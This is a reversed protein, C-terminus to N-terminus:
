SEGAQELTWAAEGGPEAGEKGNATGRRPKAADTADGVQRREIPGAGAGPTANELIGLTRAARSSSAPLSVPCSGCPEFGQPALLTEQLSPNYRIAQLSYEDVNCTPFRVNCILDDFTLKMAGGGGSLLHQLQQPDAHGLECRLDCLQRGTRRILMLSPQRWPRLQRVAFATASKTM